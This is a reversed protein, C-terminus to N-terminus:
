HEPCLSVTYSAAPETMFSIRYLGLHKSTPAATATSVLVPEPTRLKCEGGRTSRITAHRLRGDHWAIDVVFGGRARLGSVCGARWITPLAPLLHLEGSQSQLLLEAIGATAGFNGDIQFPPHADFLNAYVGGGVVLVDNTQVLRLMNTLL